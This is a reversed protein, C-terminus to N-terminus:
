IWRRISKKCYFFEDAFPEEIAAEEPIIKFRTVFLLFIMSMILGGYVNFAIAISM